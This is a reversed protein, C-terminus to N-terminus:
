SEGPGHPGCVDLVTDGDRAADASTGIRDIPESHLEACRETAELTGTEATFEARLAQTRVEFRLCDVQRHAVLRPRSLLSASHLTGDLTDSLVDTTATTLDPTLFRRTRVNDYLLFSM